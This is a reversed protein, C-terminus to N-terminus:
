IEYDKRCKINEVTLKKKLKNVIRRKTPPKYEDEEFWGSSVTGRVKIGHYRALKKLQKITLINLQLAVEDEPISRGLKKLVTKHSKTGQIRNCPGCICWSNKLTSLGGKSYATKHGAEMELYGINKLCMECKGGARIYLFKRDNERLVRRRM